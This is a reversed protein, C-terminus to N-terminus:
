EAPMLGPDFDSSGPEPKQQGLMVRAIAPLVLLTLFTAVVLGGIVVTALPKQVEAGTGTALAMPVFGIAPVLGTMLVPRVKEMVGEVIARTVEVGDDIRQGVSTMVILSNLVAVGLLCLFGVAASVSFPIGTLALTFVGGAVGLPVASFVALAPAIRRAGHLAARPDPSCSRCSSPSGPQAAQLNEFQGGWEIYAGAPLASRRVKEHADAVFGVLDRGRVNAQIVVRRKGNERSIQNLGETFRSSRLSGWRSASVTGAPRRPLMVPTARLRMSMTARARSAGAGGRRLPPRGRLGPRGRARWPPPSPMPVEEITLGNRAIADRNFQVDLTPSGRTQEVKVDAAGPTAQLAEAIQAATAEAADLDDGYLKIAVDLARGLDARQLAARDAPQDRLTGSKEGKGRGARDQRGGEKTIKEPWEHEPKLIVFGDSINPPMPDAAVEATGTKSM